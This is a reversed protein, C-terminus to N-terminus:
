IHYGLSELAARHQSEIKRLTNKELLERWGGSKGKRMRNANVIDDRELFDKKRQSFSQRQVARSLNKINYDIHLQDFADTLIKQSDSLLDEYRVVVVNQSFSRWFQIHDSWNGVIIKRISKRFIFKYTKSAFSKVQLHYPGKWCVVTRKIQHCFYKKIIKNKKVLAESIMPHSAFFASILVDRFDRVIYIIKSSKTIFEPKDYKSHHSKLVIYTGDRNLGETAKESSHQLYGSGTRSNLADGVLRTLWTNGSKPYGIIFIPEKGFFDPYKM